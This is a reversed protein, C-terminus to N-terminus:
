SAHGGTGLPRSRPAITRALAPALWTVAFKFITGPRFKNRVAQMVARRADHYRQNELLWNAQSSHLAGLARKVVRRVNPPLPLTGDLWHELMRQQQMFQLEANDWPRCSSGPPSPTRDIQALQKNVYGISAALSLRFHLDRDEAFLIDARFGGAERFVATRVLLTSLWFGSFSHALSMTASPDIGIVHTYFRRHAQFSSIDMGSQNVLRADTFCAGCAQGLETFAQLQWELKNAAWIDDSDLFALYEGRARAAGANRATASGQNPQRCFFVRHSDAAKQNVFRELAEGSGDSSGDDVVIVELDTVTQALVSNVAAMTQPGRNYTPIVVSILPRGTVPDQADIQLPGSAHRSPISPMRTM